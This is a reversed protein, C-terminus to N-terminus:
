GDFYDGFADDLTFRNCELSVVNLRSALQRQVDPRGGLLHVERNGFSQTPLSTHGYRTPVSFGLLFIDPVRDLLCDAIAPDKPVIVVRKAFRTLAYAEDIIKNLEVIHTVDRAVTVLPKTLRAADLHRAFDYNGWDVDLFGLREFGRTHRLNTYRAGPLWGFRQAIKLVRNSHTVFKCVRM